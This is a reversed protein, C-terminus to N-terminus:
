SYSTLALGQRKRLWWNERGGGMEVYLVVGCQVVSEFLGWWMFDTYATALFTLM